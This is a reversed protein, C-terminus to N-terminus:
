QGTCSGAQDRGSYTTAGRDALVGQRIWHGRTLSMKVINEFNKLQRPQDFFWTVPLPRRRAARRALGGKGSGEIAPGCFACLELPKRAIRLAARSGAAQGSAHSTWLIQAASPSRSAGGIAGLVDRRGAIQRENGAGMPANSARRRGRSTTTRDGLRWFGVMYPSASSLQNKARGRNRRILRRTGRAALSRRMLRGVAGCAM